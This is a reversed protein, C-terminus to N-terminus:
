ANFGIEEIKVLSTAIVCTKNGYQLYLSHDKSIWNKFTEFDMIKYPDIGNNRLDNDIYSKIQFEFREAWLEIQQQTVIPLNKKTFENKCKQVQWILHKYGYIFSKYFFDKIEKVEIYDRNKDTTTMMAMMSLRLRYEKSNLVHSLQMFEDEQIKDDGSDDIIYYIKETLYTYHMEPIPFRFLSEIADNFRTKNLYSNDIAYTFFADKLMKTTIHYKFKNATTNTRMVSIKSPNSNSKNIEPNMNQPQFINNQNKNISQNNFTNQNRIHPPNTNTKNINNGILGEYNYDPKSNQLGDNGM